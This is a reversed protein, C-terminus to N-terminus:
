LWESPVDGAVVSCSVPVCAAGVAYERPGANFGRWRPGGDELAYPGNFKCDVEGCTDGAVCPRYGIGGTALCETEECWGGDAGRGWGGPIMCPSVQLALSNLGGLCSVAPAGGGDYWPDLKTGALVEADFLPCTQVVCGAQDFQLADDVDDSDGGDDYGVGADINVGSLDARLSTIILEGELDGVRALGDSARLCNGGDPNWCRATRSVTGYSQLPRLLGPQKAAIRNKTQTTLREPCTIILRQLDTIGADKLEASSITAPTPLSVYVRVGAAITVLGATVLMARLKPNM